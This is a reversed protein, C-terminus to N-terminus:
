AENEIGKMGKYAVDAAEPDMNCGLRYLGVNRSLRDLLILTKRMKGVDQMRYTQSLLHPMAEASSLPAIRNEPSRELVAIARLPAGM